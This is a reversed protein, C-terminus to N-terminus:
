KYILIKVKSAIDNLTNDTDGDSAYCPNCFRYTLIRKYTLLDLMGECPIHQNLAFITNNYMNKAVKTVKCDIEELLSVINACETCDSLRPSLM